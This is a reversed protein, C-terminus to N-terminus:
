FRKSAQLSWMRPPAPRGVVTDVAPGGFDTAATIYEEDTLNRGILAVQWSQDPSRWGLRAHLIGYEDQQAPYDNVGIGENAPSFYQETQYHYDAGVYFEGADNRLWTYSGGVTATWRPANNLTQGSADFAGFAKIQANPYDKYRADLYALNAFLDLDPHPRGIIELEIGKIEATAANQTVASAPPTYLTVQLDDYDYYFASANIRLRNDLWQSKMGVEYSWLYEPEYGRAQDAASTAGFDFGGSKFGRTASAFLLLDDSPEFNVGIKPTWADENQTSSISFPDSFGPIGVLKPALIGVDPNPSGSFTWFDTIEYSKREDTYRAGVIVSWADSLHFEAQGFAAYSEATLKPRQFHSVGFMPLIVNAPERDVERFYYLGTVLSVWDYNATLNFEQSFQHQDLDFLARTADFSSADADTEDESRLERYATLSKLSWHQDLQHNLELSIGFTEVMQTNPANASIKDFDGLIGDEMPSGLPELLKSAGARNEDSKYYDARLTADTHEGLARYLQARVAYADQDEIDSGTSVNDLYADREWRGVSVSGLFGGGVPGSIYAELSRQNYNGVAARVQGSLTDTPQRSIVNITGGVSNRGYLTGQPGRLVEVREVDLFEAFYAIPRAMYVGDIHLTTSPDSGIYVNNSGVGRLYLQAYGNVDSMQLGPTFDVLGQVDEIGRSNLNDASFSTITIPTSQLDTAGTKTATVIVEELAPGQALSLAPALLLVSTLARASCRGQHPHKM